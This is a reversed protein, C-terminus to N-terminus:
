YIIPGIRYKCQRSKSYEDGRPLRMLRVTYLRSCRLSKVQNALVQGHQLGTRPLFFLLRPSISIKFYVFIVDGNDTGPVWGVIDAFFVTTELFLDALPKQVQNSAGHSKVMSHNKANPSSYLDTLSATRNLGKGNTPMRQNERQQQQQLLLRDRITEPFIQKVINNIRAADSLIKQNREYVTVDYIFFVVAMFCFTSAIVMSFNQPTQSDYARKFTLTPYIRQFFSVVLFSAIVNDAQTRIV